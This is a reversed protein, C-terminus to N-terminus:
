DCATVIGHMVCVSIYSAKARKRHLSICSLILTEKSLPPVKRGSYVRVSLQLPFCRLLQMCKGSRISAYATEKWSYSNPQVQLLSWPVKQKALASHTANGLLRVVLVLRGAWHALGLLRGACLRQGVSTAKM